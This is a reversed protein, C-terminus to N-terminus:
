WTKKIISFKEKLFLATERAFLDYPNTCSESGLRKMAGTEPDIEVGNAEMRECLEKAIEEIDAITAILHKPVCDENDKGARQGVSQPSGSIYFKGRVDTYERGNCAPDDERNQEADPQMQPYDSYGKGHTQVPHDPRYKEPDAEASASPFFEPYDSLYSLRFLRFPGVRPPHPFCTTVAPLFLFRGHAYM